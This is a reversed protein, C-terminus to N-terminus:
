KKQYKYPFLLRDLLSFLKDQIFGITIIVLLIAFVKDIQSMRASKYALAGIGGSNANVLEAVIIYTWSIAVLVRIDDSVKSLVAPIYVTRIQQWQTAGLTYATQTYVKAVEDIRQVIVPLLYVMIGFALFQVKMNTGIGFWAIFLGTVATLPVFRLADVFRSFLARFLPFLGMIFGIPIAIAIALLYGLLNLKISFLANGILDDNTFLDGFSRVVAIPSPLLSSSIWSKEIKLALSGDDNLSLKDVSNISMRDLISTDLDSFYAADIIPSGSFRNMLEFAEDTNAQAGILSIGQNAVALSQLLRKQPSASVILLTKQEAALEKVLPSIDNSLMINNNFLLVHPTEFNNNNTNNFYVNLDQTSINTSENSSISAILQWLGLLLLFGLAQIVIYTTRPLEGRLKFLPHAM